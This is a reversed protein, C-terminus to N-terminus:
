EEVKKFFRVYSILFPIFYLTRVYYLIPFAWEFAFFLAFLWLSIKKTDINKSFLKYLGFYISFTLFISGRIFNLIFGNDTYYIEDINLVGIPLLNHKLYEFNQMIVGTSSYRGMFGNINSSFTKDILINIYDYNKYLMFLLLPILIFSIKKNKKSYNYLLQIITIFFLIISTVSKMNFLLIIYLISFILNLKSNNKRYALFNLYFFLYIFFSAISHSGFYLVPKNNMFMNGLLEPYFSSYNKLFFDKIKLNDYVILFGLTLNIINVLKFIHLNRISLNIEPYNVMLLLAFILMQLLVGTHLNSTNYKLLGLLTFLFTFSIIMISYKMGQKNIGNKILLVVILFLLIFLMFRTYRESIDYSKSSPFFLGIVLLLTLIIENIRIHIKM